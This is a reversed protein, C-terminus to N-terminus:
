PDPRGPIGRPRDVATIIAEIAARIEEETNYRGLGIRISQHPREEWLGTAPRAGSRGGHIRPRPARRYTRSTGTPNRTGSGTWGARIM